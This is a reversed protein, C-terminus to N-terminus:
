TSSNSPKGLIERIKAFLEKAAFPKQLLAFKGPPGHTDASGAAAYGSILLVQMNPRTRMLQEALGRGNMTGPMVIDSILLHIEVTTEDSVRLAEAANRATLVTYGIGLLLRATAERVMDEDEVILITEQGPYLVVPEDQGKRQASDVEEEMAPLYIRFESGKQEESQVTVHGGSQKVSGYVSSLGLGTGKEKTTFFPEFLHALTDRSMGTGTDSVSITAYLGPEVDANRLASNRDIIVNETRVTLRGGEPMADRANIVLNMLIQEFQNPDAAVQSLNPDLVSVLEINEGILRQLMQGMGDVLSNLNLIKPRLMQKRGFALLQKTLNAAQASARKIGQVDPRMSSDNPMDALLLDTYGNIATLLNNFDHAIGGALQGIAEIKQSQVLQEQTQKLENLSERLDQMLRTKRWVTAMHHALAAIAPRDEEVLSESHVLLLGIADDETILPVALSRTSRLLGAMRRKQAAAIDPFHSRVFEAPVISVAQQNRSAEDFLPANHLSVHFNELTMNTLSQIEAATGASYNNYVLELAGSKKDVLFVACRMGIQQLTEGAAAFIGGEVLAHEMGLSAVNLIQLM